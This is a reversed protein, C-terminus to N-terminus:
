HHEHGRNLTTSGTDTVDTIFLAVGAAAVGIGALTLGHGVWAPPTVEGTAAAGVEGVVTAGVAVVLGGFAAVGELILRGTKTNRVRVRDGHRGMNWGEQLKPTRWVAGSIGSSHASMERNDSDGPTWVSWNGSTQAGHLGWLGSSAAKTTMNWLGVREKGRLEQMVFMAEYVQGDPNQWKIMSGDTTNESLLMAYFEIDQSWQKYTESAYWEEASNFGLSEWIQQETFHGTPDIYRLPNGGVYSFRNLSQPDAPDPVISDPSLWRALSPDVWRAGM